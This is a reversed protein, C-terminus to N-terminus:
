KNKNCECSNTTPTEVVKQCNCTNQSAVNQNMKCPCSKQTNAGMNANIYFKKEALKEQVTRLAEGFRQFHVVERERLFRLVDIVEPDDALDILYEYTTRAKQEAAMGTFTQAKNLYPVFMLVILVINRIM